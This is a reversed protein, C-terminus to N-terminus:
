DDDRLTDPVWWDAGRRLTALCDQITMRELPLRERAPIAHRGAIWWPALGGFLMVVLVLPTLLLIM